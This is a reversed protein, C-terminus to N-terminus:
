VPHEMFLIGGELRYTPLKDQMRNHVERRIEPILNIKRDIIGFEALHHFILMGSTSKKHQNAMNLRNVDKESYYM